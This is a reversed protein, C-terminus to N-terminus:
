WAHELRSDKACAVNGFIRHARDSQDPTEGFIMGLRGKGAAKESVSGGTAM